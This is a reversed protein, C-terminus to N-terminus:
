RRIAASSFERGLRRTGEHVVAKKVEVFNGIHARERIDAGPRLRAFPGVDAGAAVRSQDMVSYPRVVVDDGIVADRLM